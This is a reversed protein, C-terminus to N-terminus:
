VEAWILKFERYFTRYAFIFISVLLGTFLFKILIGLAGGNEPKVPIITPNITTFVPTDENVSIQAGIRQSELESYVSYALATKNELQKRRTLSVATNNFRNRDIYSALVSQANLYEEKKVNYQDSIFNYQEKAKNVRYAIIKDQLIKKASRNVQAAVLPNQMQSSIHITGDTEDITLTVDKMLKQMLAADENSVYKLSDLNIKEFATSEKSKLSLIILGPLGITYKKIKDGIGVKNHGKYYDKLTTVSDFEHLKVKSNLLDENYSTSNMLKPYLYVPIDKYEKKSGLNVGILDAINKLGSGTKSDGDSLTIFSTRAVYMKQNFIISFVSLILAVTLTTFILKKSRLYQKVYSLIPKLDEKM